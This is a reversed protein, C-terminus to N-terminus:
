RATPDRPQEEHRAAATLPQRTKRAAYARQMKIHNGCGAMSCWRRVQNRSSDYFAWRCTDRACVKLRPWTGDESSQRVADALRGLALHLPTDVTSALSYGTDNFLLRVPVGAMTHNLAQVAADDVEHGAHGILLARLGERVSVATAVDAPHLQAQAPVLHREVLWNRLDEPTGLAEAGTQPERTNVFDRVLRIQPPAHDDDTM